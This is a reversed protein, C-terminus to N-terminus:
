LMILQSSQCFRLVFRRAMHLVGQATSIKPPLLGLFFALFKMKLWASMPQTLYLKQNRIYQLMTRRNVCTCTYLVRYRYPVTM